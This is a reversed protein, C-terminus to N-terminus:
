CACGGSAANANGTPRVTGPSPRKQWLDPSEIIRRVLEEMANNVNQRTKASCEVFLTGLKEALAAGEEQSVVRAEEKDVKNGVIMKVVNQGNSYTSLEHFWNALQDFTDRNTVDYVLIVGQAGRYYSSTLTRFREQGATDWITLKYKKDEFEIVKVKFDVGITASVEDPPLFADDTFRLLLSSKGVNTNGILLLKFTATIDFNSM